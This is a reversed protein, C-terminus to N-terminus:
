TPSIRVRSLPCPPVTADIEAIVEGFWRHPEGTMISWAHNWYAPAQDGDGTVEEPLGLRFRLDDATVM